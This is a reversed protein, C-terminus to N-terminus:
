AQRVQNITGHSVTTSISRNRKLLDQHHKANAHKRRFYRGARQGGCEKLGQLTVAWAWVGVRCSPQSIAEKRASRQAAVEM